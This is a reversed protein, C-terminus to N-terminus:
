AYGRGVKGRFFDGLGKILADREIGKHRWKPSITWVAATLLHRFLLATFRLVGGGHQALLMLSNRAMYYRIRPLEADRHHHSRHWVKAEPVYLTRYGLRRGRLCWDVDERYMFYEPNLLGMQELFDARVLVAAGIVYDVEELRDFKGHDREDLGRQHSRWLWDLRAGASQIMDPEQLHYIKPGLFAADPFREAISILNTLSDPAVKTDNNLLLIYQAARALAHRIGANNGGVYGLNEGTEIIEVDPQEARIRDVSGDTSGNDVVLVRINPYNLRAVSDLCEITDPAKNWNLIVVAALPDESIV